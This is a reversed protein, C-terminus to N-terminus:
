ECVFLYVANNRFPRQIEDIAWKVYDEVESVSGMVTPVSVEIMGEVKTYYSM